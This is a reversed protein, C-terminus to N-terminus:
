GLWMTTVRSLLTQRIVPEVPMASAVARCAASSPALTNTVERVSAFQRAKASFSPFCPACRCGIQRLLFLDGRGHAAQM